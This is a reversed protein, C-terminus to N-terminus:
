RSAASASSREDEVSDAQPGLVSDIEKPASVKPGLPQAPREVSWDRAVGREGFALELWGLYGLLSVALLHLLLALLAIRWLWGAAGRLQPAGAVERQRDHRLEM